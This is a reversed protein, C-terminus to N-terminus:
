VRRNWAGQASKHDRGTFKVINRVMGPSKACWHNIEVSIIETPKNIPGWHSNEHIHTEGAGCFPCPKLSTLLEDETM